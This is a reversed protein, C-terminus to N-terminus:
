VHARGIKDYIYHVKDGLLDKILLCAMGNSCDITVKLGDLDPLYQMLFALYDEKVALDVRRGRASSPEPAEDRVWKELQALGDEYGVPLANEGSVKLGNYEKPNHSATIQVSAKFGHRATAFYVMPTTALGIYYVDAGADMIGNALYELIEPSSIRDDRGILIKDAALLRPLFFGMRYVDERNFDRGYVGRIDYAKFAGM